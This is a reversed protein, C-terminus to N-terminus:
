VIFIHLVQNLTTNAINKKFSIIEFSTLITLITPIQQLAEYALINGEAAGLGQASM